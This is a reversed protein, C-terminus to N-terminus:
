NRGSGNTRGPPLDTAAAAAAAYTIPTYRDYTTLSLTVRPYVGVEARLYEIGEAAAATVYSTTPTSTSTWEFSGAADAAAM